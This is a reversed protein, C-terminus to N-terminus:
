IMIPQLGLFIVVFGAAALFQWVTVVFGLVRTSGSLAIAFSLYAAAGALAIFQFYWEYSSVVTQLRLDDKFVGAEVAALTLLFPLIIVM